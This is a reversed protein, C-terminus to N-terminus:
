PWPKNEARLPQGNIKAENISQYLEIPLFIQTAPEDVKPGFFLGTGWQEFFYGDFEPYIIERYSMETNGVKEITRKGLVDNLLDVVKTTCNRDIFKYTYFREDSALT